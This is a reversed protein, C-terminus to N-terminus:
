AKVKGYAARWLVWFEPDELLDDYDMGNKRWLDLWDAFTVEGDAMQGIIMGAEWDAMNGLLDHFDRIDDLDASPLSNLFETIADQVEGAGSMRSIGVGEGETAMSLLNTGRRSLGLTDGAADVDGDHYAVVAKYLYKRIYDDLSRDAEREGRKYYEERPRPLESERSIPKVPPRALPLAPPLPRAPPLLPLPVRRAEQRVEKQYDVPSRAFSRKEGASTVYRQFRRMTSSYRRKYEATGPKLNERAVIRKALQSRYGPDRRMADLLREVQADNIRRPPKRM